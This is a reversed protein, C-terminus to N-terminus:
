RELSSVQLQQQLRENTAIAVQPKRMKKMKTKRRRRRGRWRGRRRRRRRRGRRRERRRERRRRRRRKWTPRKCHSSGEFWRRPNAKRKKRKM